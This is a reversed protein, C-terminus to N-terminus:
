HFYKEISLKGSFEFHKDLLKSFKGILYGNLFATVLTGWNIGVFHMFGFFVFSLIISVTFSTMDYGIKLRSFEINFKESLEKVLLEYAEPALYTHLLFAIGLTCLLIGSAFLGCRALFLDAPIVDAIKTCLDLTQGYLFATVFSFLYYMKFKRMIATLLIILAGQLCYEAMGFSFFAFYQSVKLHILYAPAVVMSMGFNAKVMLSTGFALLFLGIIYSIESYFKKKELTFHDEGFIHKYCLIVRPPNNCM